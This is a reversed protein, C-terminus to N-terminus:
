DDTLELYSTTTTSGDVLHLEFSAGLSEAAAFDNGEWSALFWGDEVTVDIKEGADTTITIGTVDSGARGGVYGIGGPGEEGFHGVTLLAVGSPPAGRLPESSWNLDPDSGDFSAGTFATGDRTGLLFQTTGTTSVAVIRMGAKTTNGALLAISQGDPVEGAVTGRPDVPWIAPVAVFVGVALVAATLPVAVLLRLRPRWSHGRRAPTLSEIRQEVTRLHAERRAHPLSAPAPDIHSLLGREPLGDSQHAKM